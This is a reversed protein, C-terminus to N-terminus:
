KQQFDLVQKQRKSILRRLLERRLENVTLGEEPKDRLIRKIEQGVPSDITFSM